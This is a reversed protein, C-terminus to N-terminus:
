GPGRDEVAVRAMGDRSQVTVRVTEGSPSFKAANSLLNTAVQMLRDLDGRAMVPRTPAALELSVEFQSAYGQNADLAREMLDVMDLERMDFELKGSQIKDMDLIDSILRVLREGNGYAIELLRKSADTLVVKPDGLLLGVAGQISTLPTRLEHSVTSIFDDKMRDVAHRETVDRFIGRVSEPAGDVFRCNLDGEVSIERGDRAVFVAEFRGEPEQRAAAAMARAFVARTASALFQSVEIDEVEEAAYGLTDRWARNVYQFRGALDVSLILDSANEFLDRYREEGEARRRVAHALDVAALEDEVMAALDRLMAMQEADFVRPERDIACLTGLKMGNPDRVPCGAYFRIHPAGTVLPNDSFRPDTLADPTVLIGDDLIAHGCFSIDRGTETADLGHRSKFWQRNEDILSVLAIPVGLARGATRTIRDFREEMPTDLIRLRLLAELREDEDTPIAPTQM